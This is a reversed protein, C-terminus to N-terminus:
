FYARKRSTKPETKPALIHGLGAWSAGLIAKSRGFSRWSSSWTATVHCSKREVSVKCFCQIKRHKLAEPSGLLSGLFAWSAEHQWSAAFLVAHPSEPVSSRLSVSFSDLILGLLTGSVLRFPESVLDSVPDSFPRRSGACGLAVRALPM